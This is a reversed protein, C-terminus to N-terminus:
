GSEPHWAWWAPHTDRELEQLYSGAECAKESLLGQVAVWCEKFPVDTAVTPGPHTVNM